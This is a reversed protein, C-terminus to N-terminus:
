PTSAAPPASTHAALRQAALRAAQSDPWATVVRRYHEMALPLQGQRERCFGLWFLATPYHRSDGAAPGRTVLPELIDVAQQYQEDAILAVARNTAEEGAPQTTAFHQFMGPSAACGGIAALALLLILRKAWM